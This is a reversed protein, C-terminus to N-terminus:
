ITTRGPDKRGSQGPDKGLSQVTTARACSKSWWSKKLLEITSVVVAGMEVAKRRIRRTTLDYHPHNRSNEHYWARKLGLRAAFEHLEEASETSSLHCWGDFIIM